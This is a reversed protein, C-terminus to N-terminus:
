PGLPLPESVFQEYLPTVDPAYNHVGLWCARLRGRFVVGKEIDHGFLGYRCSWGIWCRSYRTVLSSGFRALWTTRSSWRSMISVPRAARRCCLCQARASDPVAITDASQSDVATERGDYSLAASRADRADVWRDLRSTLGTGDAPRWQSQVIM